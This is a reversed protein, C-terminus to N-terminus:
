YLGAPWGETRRVLVGVDDSSLDLGLRANLFEEAEAVSMVLEAARLEVLEGHMRLAALPLFPDARTAIVLQFSVPSNEALWAVMRQAEPSKLRHFDDVVLAISDEAALANVLRRLAEDLAPAPAALMARLEEGFEPRVTRIAEVVYAFLVAPDNESEGLTLWAVSRRRSEEVRWAALLTSKGFGPGAAVLTLCRDAGDCIMAHLRERVVLESRVAPPMLKTLLVGEDRAASVGRARSKGASEATGVGVQTTM